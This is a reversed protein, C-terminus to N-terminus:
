HKGRRFNEKVIGAHGDGYLTRVGDGRGVHVRQQGAVQKDVAHGIIERYIRRVLEPSVGRAQAAAAVRDLVVKERGADRIPTDTGAKAAGVGAVIELRRAILDVLATDVEDLEQRLEDLSPSTM